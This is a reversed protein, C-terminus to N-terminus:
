GRDAPLPAAGPNPTWRWVPAPAASTDLTYIGLADPFHRLDRLAEAHREPDERTDVVGVRLGGAGEGGSVRRVYLYCDVTGPGTQGALPGDAVRYLRAGPIDRLTNRAAERKSVPPLEEPSFGRERRVREGERARALAGLREGLEKWRARQEPTLPVGGWSQLGDDSREGPPQDSM